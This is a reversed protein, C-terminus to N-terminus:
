NYVFLLTTDTMINYFATQKWVAKKINLKLSFYLNYYNKTNRINL